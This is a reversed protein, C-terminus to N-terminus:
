PARSGWGPLVRLAPNGGRAFAAFLGRLMPRVGLLAAATLVGFYLLVGRSFRYETFVYSLAVFALISGLPAGQAAALARRDALGRRLSTSGKRM